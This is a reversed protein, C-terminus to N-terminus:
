KFVLDTIRLWSAMTGHFGIIWRVLDLPSTFPSLGVNDIPPMGLILSVRYLELTACILGLEM